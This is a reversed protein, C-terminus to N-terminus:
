HTQHLFRLQLKMELAAAIRILTELSPIFSSKGGEIRSIVSQTTGIKEALEIQTIHQAKRAEVIMAAINNIIQERAYYKAFEPNTKLAKGVYETLTLAKM